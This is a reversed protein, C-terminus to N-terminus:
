KKYPLELYNLIEIIAKRAAPDEIDGVRINKLVSKAAVEKQKRQDAKLSIREPKAYASSLFLFCSVLAFVLFHNLNNTKMM